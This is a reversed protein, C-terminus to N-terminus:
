WEDKEDKKMQHEFKKQDLTEKNANRKWKEPRRNNLWIAQALTDPKIYTEVEVVVVKEKECKRGENDYYTEKVKFAKKEKVYKGTANEHLANEVEIDAIEENEKLAVSLASYKEKYTRFTSYAVSLNTAIQKESLGDRAWGAILAL